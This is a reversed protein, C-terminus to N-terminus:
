AKKEKPYRGMIYYLDFGEARFAMALSHSCRFAIAKKKGEITASEWFSQAVYGKRTKDFCFFVFQKPLAVGYDVHGDKPWTRTRIMKATARKWEGWKIHPNVGYTVGM